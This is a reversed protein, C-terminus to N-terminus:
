DQRTFRPFENWEVGDLMELRIFEELEVTSVVGEDMYIPLAAQQVLQQYGSLRNPRIPAELVDVGADALKPATAASDAAQYRWSRYPPRSRSFVTTM